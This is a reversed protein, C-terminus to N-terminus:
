AHGPFVEGLRPSEGNELEDADDDDERHEEMGVDDLDLFDPLCLFRLLDDGDGGGGGEGVEATGVAGGVGVSFPVSDM